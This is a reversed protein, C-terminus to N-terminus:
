CTLYMGRAPEPINFYDDPEDPAHDFYPIHQFVVVQGAPDSRSSALTRKLWAEQQEAAKPDEQPARILNSDLVVGLMGDASFTYYDPGISARFGAITSATPINGVDHNGAVYYVPILPNVERVVRKYEALEAPEATRNVLDGCIM